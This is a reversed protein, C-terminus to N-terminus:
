KVEPPLITIAPPGFSTIRKSISNFKMQKKIIGESPNSYPVIKLKWFISNLDIHKKLYAIKTKTSIYLPTIVSSIDFFSSALVPESKFSPTENLFMSWEEDLM